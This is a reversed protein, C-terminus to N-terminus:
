VAFLRDGSFFLPQSAPYQQKIQRKSIWEHQIASHEQNCGIKASLLSKFCILAKKPFILTSPTLILFPSSKEYALLKNSGLGFALIRSGNKDWKKQMMAEAKTMARVCTKQNEKM